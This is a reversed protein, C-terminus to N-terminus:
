LTESHPEHLEGQAGWQARHGGRPVNSFWTKTNSILGGPGDKCKQRTVQPMNESAPVRSM